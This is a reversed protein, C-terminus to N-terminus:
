TGFHERIWPVQTLHWPKKNGNFHVIRADAPLKRFAEGPQGNRRMDASQYIGCHQPWVACDAALCRSIWAQDSGRWGQRHAQLAAAPSFRDWVDTRTGTRLLWSGGGVRRKEASGWISSPVWGVFDDDPAFLPKLARTVVADIDIMMVRDGLVRADDSFTWLRRYSSPVRPGEPSKVQALARAAPPLPLVEVDASFGKTEETVCIFRHPEPLHRRVQRALRNVYDPLYSRFGDNWQYCIVSKTESM